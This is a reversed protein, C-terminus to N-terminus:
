FNDSDKQINRENFFILKPADKNNNVNKSFIKLIISTFHKLFEINNNLGLLVESCGELNNESQNQTDGFIPVFFQVLALFGFISFGTLSKKEFCLLKDLPMSLLVMLFNPIEIQKCIIERRLLVCNILSYFPEFNRNKLQILCNSFINKCKQSKM